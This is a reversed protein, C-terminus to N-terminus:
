LGQMCQTDPDPHLFQQGKEDALRRRCCSCTKKEKKELEM